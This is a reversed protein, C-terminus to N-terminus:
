RFVRNICDELFNSLQSPIELRQRIIEGIEITRRANNDRVPRRTKTQRAQPLSLPPLPYSVIELAADRVRAFLRIGATTM